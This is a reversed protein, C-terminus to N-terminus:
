ASPAPSEIALLKPLKEAPCALTELDFSRFGQMWLALLKRDVEMTGDENIRGIRNRSDKLVVTCKGIDGNSRIIFSNPKSAYCVFPATTNQTYRELANENGGRAQRWQSELHAVTAIAHERNLVAISGTNPGGWDGVVRFVVSFRQDAAFERALESVLVPLHEHNSPQVHVRLSLAIDLDSKGLEILNRWIRDFTGQGDRRRRTADHISGPGDLSIQYNRVGVAALRRALAGDLLYANTTMGGTYILEPHARALDQALSSIDLVVDKALLPEGGFWALDLASLGPARKTVLQKIGSVVSRNMKKLAFDEYCYTCRFNCQETPLLILSLRQTSLNSLLFERLSRDGNRTIQRSM